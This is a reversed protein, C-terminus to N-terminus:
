GLLKVGEDATFMFTDGTDLFSVIYGNSDKTGTIYFPVGAPFNIWTGTIDRFIYAQRMHTCLGSTLTKLENRQAQIRAKAATLYYAM